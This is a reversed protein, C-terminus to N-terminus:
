AGGPDVWTVLVFPHNGGPPIVSLEVERLEPVELELGPTEEEEGSEDQGSGTESIRVALGKSELRYRWGDFGEIEGSDEEPFGDESTRFQHLVVQAAAAARRAMDGRFAQRHGQAFGSLLVGLAIGTIATAVLVEMLTFGPSGKAKRPVPSSFPKM